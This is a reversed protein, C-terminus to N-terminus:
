GAHTVTNGFLRLSQGTDVAIDGANNIDGAGYQLGPAVSLSLLPLTTPNTASFETGDSLVFRDATSVSLSGGMDLQAAPGFSVGNPNILFLNADGLVGLIGDIESGGNGTVRMFITEITAPSAFYTGRGTEINFAEFSHFLRSGRLAGGDIRDTQGDLPTILSNEAGLTDDPLLQAILVSGGLNNVVAAHAAQPLSALLLILGLPPWHAFHFM